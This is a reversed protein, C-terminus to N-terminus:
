ADHAVKGLEDNTSIYHDGAFLTAVRFRECSEALACWDQWTVGEQTVILIDLDV